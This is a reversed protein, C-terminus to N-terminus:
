IALVYMTLLACFNRFCLCFRLVIAYLAVFTIFICHLHAGHREPTNAISCSYSYSYVVVVVKIRHLHSFRFVWPHSHIQKETSYCSYSRLCTCPYQYSVIGSFLIHIHHFFPIRFIGVFLRVLCNMLPLQANILKIKFLFFFCRRFTLTQTQSFWVVCHQNCYNLLMCQMRDISKTRHM